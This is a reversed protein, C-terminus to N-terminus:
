LAVYNNSSSNEVQHAPGPEAKSAYCTSDSYLPYDLINEELFLILNDSYEQMSESTSERLQSAEAGFARGRTNFGQDGTNSLNLGTHDVIVRLEPLAKQLARYAVLPKCENLLATLKATYTNTKDAIKLEAYQDTCLIKKLYMEEARRLYPILKRYLRRSDNVALYNTLEEATKIFLERGKTYANSNKWTPYSGENTELFLLLKEMAVEGSKMSKRKFNEIARQQAPVSNESVNQQIGTDSISLNGIDSYLYMTYNALTRQIFPLAKLNAPTLNDSDHQTILEDFFEQGIEPIIYNIQAEDISPEYVVNTSATNIAIYKKLENKDKLLRGAM